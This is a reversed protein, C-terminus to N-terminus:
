RIDTNPLQLDKHIQDIFPSNFNNDNSINIDSIIKKDFNSIQCISYEEIFKNIKEHYIDKKIKEENEFPVKFKIDDFEKTDLKKSKYLISDKEFVLMQRQHDNLLVKMLAKLERISKVISVWDLDKLFRDKGELYM